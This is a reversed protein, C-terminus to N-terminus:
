AKDEAEGRRLFAPTAEDAGLQRVLAVVPAPKAEQKPAESSAPPPSSAPASSSSAEAARRKLVRGALIGGAAGYIGSAIAAAQATEETTARQAWTALGWKDLSVAWCRILTPWAIDGVGIVHGDLEIALTSISLGFAEGVKADQKQILGVIGAAVKLSVPSPEPLEAPGDGPASSAVGSVDIPPADGGAPPPGEAAGPAGAPPPAAETPRSAPVAEVPPASAEPPMPVSFLRPPPGDKAKRGPRRKAREYETLWQEEAPTRTAKRRLM